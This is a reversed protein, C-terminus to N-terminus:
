ACLFYSKELQFVLECVAIPENFCLFDNVFSFVILLLTLFCANYSQFTFYSPSFIACIAQKYRRYSGRLDAGLCFRDLKMASTGLPTLHEATSCLVVLIRGFVVKMIVVSEGRITQGPRDISLMRFFGCVM